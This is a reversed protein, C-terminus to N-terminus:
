LALNYNEAPKKLTSFFCQLKKATIVIGPLYWAQKGRQADEFDWDDNYCYKFINSDWLYFIMHCWKAYPKNFVYVIFITFLLQSMNM